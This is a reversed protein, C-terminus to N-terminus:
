LLGEKMFLGKLIPVLVDAIDIPAIAGDVILYHRDGAGGEDIFGLEFRKGAYWLAESWRKGRSTQM